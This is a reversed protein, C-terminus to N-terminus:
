LHLEDQQLPDGPEQTHLSRSLIVVWLPGGAGGVQPAAGRTGLAAADRVRLVGGEMRQVWLVQGRELCPGEVRPVRVEVGLGAGVVIPVKKVHAELAYLVRRHERLSDLPIVDGRPRRSYCSARRRVQWRM